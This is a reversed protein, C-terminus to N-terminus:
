SRRRCVEVVAGEFLVIRWVFCLSYIIKPRLPLRLVTRTRYVIWLLNGNQRKDGLRLLKNRLQVAASLKKEWNIYLRRIVPWIEEYYKRLIDAKSHKCIFAALKSCSKILWYQNIKVCHPWWYNISDFSTLLTFACYLM